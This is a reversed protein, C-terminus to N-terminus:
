GNSAPPCSGHADTDPVIPFQGTAEATESDQVYLKTFFWQGCVIQPDIFKITVNDDTQYNGAACQPQCTNFEYTAATGVAQQASWQTWSIGEFSGDNGILYKAPKVMGTNANTNMAGANQAAQVTDGPLLPSRFSASDLHFGHKGDSSTCDVSSTAVVCSAPGLNIDQGARAQYLPRAKLGGSSDEISDMPLDREMDLCTFSAYEGPAMWVAPSAEYPVNTCNAPPVTHKMIRCDVAQSAYSPGAAQDSSWQFGPLGCSINGDPTQFHPSKTLDYATATATATARASGNPASTTTSNGGTCGVLVATVPVLLLFLTAPRRSGARGDRGARIQM